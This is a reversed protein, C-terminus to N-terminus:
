CELLSRPKPKLTDWHKLLAEPTCFCDSMHQKYYTIKEPIQDPEIGKLKMDRVIKGIRSKENKTDTKLGFHFCLADWLPNPKREPKKAPITNKGKQEKQETRNQEAVYQEVATSDPEVEISDDELWAIKASKLVPIAKKFIAESFGSMISLDEVTIPGDEDVMSGREPMKSAVQLIIIWATFIETSDKMAVIRRYGKGDMKNPLPLWAAKQVKRSHANEFHENWNKIKLTM